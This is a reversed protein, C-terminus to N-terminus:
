AKNKNLKYNIFECVDSLNRMSRLTNEDESRVVKLGFENELAVILDVSDLSDLGLEEYLTSQLSFTKAEVEFDEILIKQVRTMIEDITM